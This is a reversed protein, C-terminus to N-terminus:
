SKAYQLGKPTNAAEKMKEMWTKFELNEELLEGARLGAVARTIGFVAIDAGGPTNGGMFPRAGLGDAWEKAKEKLFLDPQDIQERKKIKKAVLTMALAGSYKIMRKEFWSFKGVKTIYDFSKLANPFTDYIATPLGKVFGESWALWKNEAEIEQPATEFVRPEPFEADISRMIPTSDNVQRGESDMYIPVARYGPSFALETKKLPHVEIKEYDIGKYDLISKVKHCFPCAEYQYLKPKM